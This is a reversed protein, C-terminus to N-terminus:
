GGHTEKIMIDNVFREADMWATEGTFRTLIEGNKRVQAAFSSSWVEYIGSGLIFQTDLTLEM